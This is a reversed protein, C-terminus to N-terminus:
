WKRRELSVLTMMIFLAIVSFFYIIDRSDILGRSISNYHYDIGFMQVVDDVKGVFAPLRSLFDFGWYIFFCLFAAVIFAVIQNNSLSSAFLGIAAFAGALLFLGLYSGLVAGSDINGQPSGLQYVTYYYLGTPLLAFALLVMSAFYKGMIIQLDTIPRTVLLEITGAQQEEALSRMTIAPILFIFIMPAIEFLQGLSAYNYNLLSTDPFVFMMLGMIVLFVGIVIYGILSSFFANVEKLFISLM